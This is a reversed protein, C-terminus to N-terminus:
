EPIDESIINLLLKFKGGVFARRAENDTGELWINVNVQGNYYGNSDPQGSLIAIVQDNYNEKIEGTVTQSASLNEPNAQKKPYYSHTFSPGSTQNLKIDSFDFLGTDKSDLYIDSRPIWTFFSNDQKVVSVRIAGAVIDRSYKNGNITGATNKVNAGTLATDVTQVCSGDGLKVKLPDKSRMYLTFSVYDGDEGNQGKNAIPTTWVADDSTNVIAMNDGQSLAPRLFNGDGSGTIDTFKVNKFWDRSYENERLDIDSKWSDEEGTLSLQLSNDAMVEIQNSDVENSNNSAFWAFVFGVMLFLMLISNAVILKKKHVTQM